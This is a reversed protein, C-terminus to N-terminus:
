TFVEYALRAIIYINCCRHLHLTKAVGKGFLTKPTAKLPAKKKVRAM